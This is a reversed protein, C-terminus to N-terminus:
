MVISDSQQNMNIVNTCKVYSFEEIFESKWGSTPTCHLHFYLFTINTISLLLLLKFKDSQNNDHQIVDFIAFKYGM